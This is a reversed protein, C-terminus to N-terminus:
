LGGWGAFEGDVIFAWPGYGYERWLSEKDELWQRCAAEDFGDGILPMHQRVRPDTHLAIIRAPDIEALRKFELKM